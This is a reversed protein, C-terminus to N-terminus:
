HISIKKQWQLPNTEQVGTEENSAQSIEAEEPYAEETSAIINSEVETRILVSVVSPQVSDDNTPSNAVKAIKAIEKQWKQHASKLNEDTIDACRKRNNIKKQIGTAIESFTGLHHRSAPCAQSEENTNQTSPVPPPNRPITNYPIDIL